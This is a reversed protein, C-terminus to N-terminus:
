ASHKPMSSIHCSNVAISWWAASFLKSRSGVFPHPGSLSCSPITTLSLNRETRYLKRYCFAFIRNWFENQYVRVRLNTSTLSVFLILIKYSASPKDQIFPLAPLLIFAMAFAVFLFIFGTWSLNKNKYLSRIHLLSIYVKKQSMQWKSIFSHVFFSYRFIFRFIVASSRKVFPKEIVDKDNTGLKIKKHPLFIKELVESPSRTKRKGCISQPKIKRNISRHPACSPYGLQPKFNGFISEPTEWRDTGRRSEVTEM